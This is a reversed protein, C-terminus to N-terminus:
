WQFCFIALTLRPKTSILIKIIQNQENIYKYYLLVFNVLFIQLTKNRKNFLLTQGNHSSDSGNGPVVM